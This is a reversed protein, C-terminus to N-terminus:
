ESFLVDRSKVIMGASEVEGEAVSRALKDAVCVDTVSVIPLSKM